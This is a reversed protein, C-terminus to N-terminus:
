EKTNQAEQYVKDKEQVHGSWRLRVQSDLM